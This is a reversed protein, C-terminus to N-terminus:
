AEGTVWDQIGALSTQDLLRVLLTSEELIAGFGAGYADRGGAYDEVFQVTDNPTHYEPYDSATRGGAFRISPIGAAIFVAEDSNRDNFPFVEAGDAPWGLVEVVTANVFAHLDDAHDADVWNYLKWTSYGPWNLGVMDYGLYFDITPVDAPPDAVFSSSGVVGIEEGDFLLCVLTKALEVQALHKCTEVVMATGSGNDYAAEVTAQNDYHAGLAIAHDPDTTGRKVAVVVNISAPGAGAPACPDGVLPTCVPYDEVRADFGAAALEAALDAAAMENVPSFANRGVYTTSFTEWYVLGADADWAPLPALNAALRAPLSQASGNSADADGDGGPGDSSCGAIVTGALLVAVLLTPARVVDVM